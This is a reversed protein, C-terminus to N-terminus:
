LVNLVQSLVDGQLSGHQELLRLLRQRDSPDMWHANMGGEVARLEDVTEYGLMQALADNAATISGDTYGRVFGIQARTFLRMQLADRESITRRQTWRVYVYLLATTVAVFLLGKGISVLIGNETAGGRLYLLADSGVIWLSSFIAYLTAAHNLARRDVVVSSSGDQDHRPM